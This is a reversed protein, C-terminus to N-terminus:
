ESESDMEEKQRLAQIRSSIDVLGLQEIWLMFKGKPLVKTLGDAKMDASRCWKVQLRAAQVEQRLWHRHVDIHKLQTQLQITEATLLRITQLNDCFVALDQELDLELEEFLRAAGYLEKSTASLGNLEAHTSSTALSRQKGTKWMIPGGFLMMIHGHTSKRDIPDTAFSADSYCEFEDSEGIFQIALHRTDYLYRICRDADEVHKESPNHMHAALKSAATMIDPRTIAAPYVISGVKQQFGNVRAENTDLDNRAPDAELPTSPMAGRAGEAPLTLGFKHAIKEIYLDQCLWTRRVSRDRIIRIGLFFQMDGLHTTAYRNMLKDHWRAWESEHERRYLAVIDDVFFFITLKGNSAICAEENLPKLGFDSCFQRLDKFWLLPSRRLGYLAKRLRWCVGYKGFGPPLSVYVEEDLTSHQFAATIDYQQAELDFKTMIALMIRLSKGALTAAYTELGQDPQLDGRVCIRAKFRRLYGHKNYKYTFVWKLPLLSPMGPTKTVEEVTGNVKLQAAEKKAAAVFEEGYPHSKLEKFHKPEPPMDRRHIKKPITTDLAARATVFIHGGSANELAKRSPKPNRRTRPLHETVEAAEDELQRDVEDQDDPIDEIESIEMPIPATTAVVITSKVSESRSPTRAHGLDTSEPEQVQLEIDHRKEPAQPTQSQMLGEIGEDIEDLVDAWPNVYRNQDVQDTSPDAIEDSVSEAAKLPMMEENPSYRKFEDFTVHQTTIVKKLTPVWIEYQTSSRYGVLYGIHARPELKLDRKLINKLAKATLPYARCGYAKLHSINPRCDANLHGFREKRHERLWQYLREIPSAWGKDPGSRKEFPTRNLLYVAARQTEPWLREPLHAEIQMTRLKATAVGGSREAKGNPHATDPTTLRIDFGEDKLYITTSQSYFFGTDNDGHIIQIRLSYQRELYATVASFWKFLTGQDKNPLCGIIRMSTKWDTMIVIYRDMNYAIPMSILDISVEAFPIDVEPTL